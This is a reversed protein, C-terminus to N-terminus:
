SLQASTIADGGVGLWVSLSTILTMSVKSADFYDDLVVKSDNIQQKSSIQYSPTVLKVSFCCDSFRILM